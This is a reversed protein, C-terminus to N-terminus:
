RSCELDFVDGRIEDRPPAQNLDTLTNIAEVIHVVAIEARM